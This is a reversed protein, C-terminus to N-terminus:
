SKCSKNTGRLLALGGTIISGIIAEMLNEKRKCLLFFLKDLGNKEM